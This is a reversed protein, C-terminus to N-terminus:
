CRVSWFGDFEEVRSSDRTDAREVLRGGRLRDEGPEWLWWRGESWETELCKNLWYYYKGADRYAFQHNLFLVPAYCVPFLAGFCCFIQILTVGHRM